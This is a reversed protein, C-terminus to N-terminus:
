SKLSELDVLPGILKQGGYNAWKMILHWCDACIWEPYPAKLVMAAEPGDVEHHGPTCYFM